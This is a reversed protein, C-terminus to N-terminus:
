FSERIWILKWGSLEFLTYLNRCDLCIEGEGSFQLITGANWRTAEILYARLM